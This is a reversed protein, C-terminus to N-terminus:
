LTMHLLFSEGEVFKKLDDNIVSYTVEAFRGGLFVCNTRAYSWNLPLPILAYCVHNLM